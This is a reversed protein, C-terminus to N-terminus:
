LAKFVNPLIPHPMPCVANAIPRRRISQISMCIVIHQVIHLHIKRADPAGHAMMPGLSFNYFRAHVTLQAILCRRPAHRARVQIHSPCAPGNHGFNQIKLCM